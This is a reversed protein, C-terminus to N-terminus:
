VRSDSFLYYPLQDLYISELESRTLDPYDHEFSLLDSFSDPYNNELWRFFNDYNGEKIEKKLRIILNKQKETM